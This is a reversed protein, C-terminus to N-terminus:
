PRLTATIMGWEQKLDLHVEHTAEFQKAFDLYAQRDLCGPWMSPEYHVEMAWHGVRKLIELAEPDEVIYREAGECDIKLITTEPQQISLHKFLQPLTHSPVGEEVPASVYTSSGDHGPQLKIPQGDGLGAQYSQIDLGQLNVRLDLYTAEVPELCIIRAEPFLTRAFMGFFGYNAGIDLITTVLKGLQPRLRYEDNLGIEEHLNVALNPHDIRAKATLATFRAISSDYRSEKSVRIGHQRLTKATHWLEQWLALFKGFQVMQSQMGLAALEDIPLPAQAQRLFAEADEAWAKPQRDYSGLLTQLTDLYPKMSQTHANQMFALVQKPSLKGFAELAAGIGAWTTQGSAAQLAYFLGDLGFGLPRYGERGQPVHAIAWPIYALSDLKSALLLSAFVGCEGRGKPMFPPLPSTNDFGYQITRLWPTQSLTLCPFAQMVERTERAVRYNALLREREQGTAVLHFYNYDAASDGVFGCSTVRIRHKEPTMRGLAVEHAALLDHGGLPQLRTQWEARDKFWEYHPTPMGGGNVRTLDQNPPTYVQCLTDDDTSLVQDGATDLLALNRYGGYTGIFGFELLDQSFGLQRLREIYVAVEKPGCVRTSPYAQPGPSQDYVISVVPRGLGRQFSELAELAQAQRNKATTIVLTNIM